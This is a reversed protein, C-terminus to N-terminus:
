SATAGPPSRRQRLKRNDWTVRHEDPDIRIVASETDYHKLTAAPVEQAPVGFGEYKESIRAVARSREEGDPLVHAKGTLVVARLEAWALGAEVTFCV